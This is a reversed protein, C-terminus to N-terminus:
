AATGPREPNTLQNPQGSDRQNIGTMPNKTPISYQAGPDNVFPPNKFCLDAQLTLWGHRGQGELFGIDGERGGREHKSESRGSHGDNSSHCSGEECVLNPRRILHTVRLRIWRGLRTQSSPLQWLLLSPWEPRLSLLCSLPPRSPSIPKRSPWPLCPYNANYAPKRKLFKDM